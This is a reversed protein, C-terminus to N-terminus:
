CPQGGLAPKSWMSFALLYVGAPIIGTIIVILSNVGNFGFYLFEAAIRIIPVLAFTLLFAGGLRSELLDKPHRISVYASLAVLLLVILHYTQFLAWNFRDLVALTEQWHFLSPFLAHFVFMLGNWVGIVVIAKRINSTM